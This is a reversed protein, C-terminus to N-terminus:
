RSGDIAVGKIQAYMGAGVSLGLQDCSKRSLRSLLIAGGAELQVTVHGQQAHDIERITVPLINLISSHEPRQRSLSVDRANIRLRLPQGERYGLDEVLLKGAGTHVGALHYERDLSEVQGDLIAGANGSEALPLDLRTLVESLPGQALTRGREMLVLQDALRTIEDLSHSVYIVPTSLEHHLRELFPMIEAKRQYDLAALPEDMLLLGPHTLLARAIAIRQQEGGSLRLPKRDLLHGIGLLETIQGLDPMDPQSRSKREMGYALNRQVTMHPFLRADQFVVGVPRQWAPLFVNRQSDQWCEGNVVLQGHQARELGAICRLLSTKGCGSPGFVGTIGQLPLELQADLRFGDHQLTFAAQLGSNM